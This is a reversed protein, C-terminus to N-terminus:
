PVGKLVSLVARRNYVFTSLTESCLAPQLWDKEAELTGWAAVKRQFCLSSTPLTSTCALCM